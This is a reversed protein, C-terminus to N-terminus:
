ECRLSFQYRLCKGFSTAPLLCAPSATSPLLGPHGFAVTVPARCTPMDM